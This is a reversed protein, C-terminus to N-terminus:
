IKNRKDVRKKSKKLFIKEVNGFGSIQWVTSTKRIVGLGSVAQRCGAPRQDLRCSEFRRRRAGLALVRGFQTVDRKEKLGQQKDAAVRINYCVYSFNDVGKKSKKSFLESKM